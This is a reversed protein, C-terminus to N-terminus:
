IIEETYLQVIQSKGEEDVVRQEVHATKCWVKTNAYLWSQAARRANLKNGCRYYPSKHVQGREDYFLSRYWTTKGKPNKHRIVRVDM